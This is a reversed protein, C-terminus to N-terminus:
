MQASAVHETTHLSHEQRKDSTAAAEDAACHKNVRHCTARGGATGIRQQLELPLLANVYREFMNRDYPLTGHVCSTCM